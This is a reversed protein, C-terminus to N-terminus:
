RNGRNGRNGHRGRRGEHEARHRELTARQEATLVADIATKTRQRLTQMAERREAGAESGNRLAQRQTRAAELISRIRSAQTDSLSLKETMRSVRRDIRREQQQSRLEEMKTKQAPTLVDLVLQRTEQHLEHMAARNEPSRGQGRLEQGRERASEMIARVQAKQNDTLELQQLMRQMGHGRRGRHGRRHHGHGQGREGQSAREGRQASATTPPMAFALGAGLGAVLAVRTVFRKIPSKSTM